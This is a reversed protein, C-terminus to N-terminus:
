SNAPGNRCDADNHLRPFERWGDCESQMLSIGHAALSMSIDRNAFRVGPAPRGPRNIETGDRAGKGIVHIKGNNAAAERSKGSRRPQAPKSGLPGGKHQLRSRETVAGAAAGAAHRERFGRGAREGAEAIHEGAVFFNEASEANVRPQRKRAGPLKGAGSRRGFAGGRGSFMRRNRPAIGALQFDDATHGAASDVRAFHEGTERASCFVGADLDDLVGLNARQVERIGEAQADAAFEAATHVLSYDAGPLDKESGVGEGEFQGAQAGGGHRFEGKRKGGAGSDAACSLPM